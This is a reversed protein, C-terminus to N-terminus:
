QIIWNFAVSEDTFVSSDVIGETLWEFQLGVGFYNTDNVLIATKWRRGRLLPKIVTRSLNYIDDFKYKLETLKRLDAVSKGCAFAAKDGLMEKMHDTIEKESVVGIWDAIVIGLVPDIKYTIPM